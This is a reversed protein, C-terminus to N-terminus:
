IPLYFLVIQLSGIKNAEFNTNKFLEKYKASSASYILEHNIGHLKVTLITFTFILFMRPFKM